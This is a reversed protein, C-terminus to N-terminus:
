KSRDWCRDALNIVTKTIKTNVLHFILGLSCCIVINLVIHALRGQVKDGVIDNYATYFVMQMLFIEYSSRGLIELPIFRLKLNNVTWVLLPVIWMDALCSTTPWDFWQMIVERKILGFHLLFIYGLGILMMLVSDRKRLNCYYAFVGASIIFIYRFVLNRWCDYNMGYAWKMCAYLIDASLCLILGVHRKKSILYNIIPIILVLQTIIPIYYSGPGETGCLFWRVVGKGSRDVVLNPDAIIWIVVFIYPIYYRIYKRSLERIGYAEDVTKIGHRNISMAGVYGSIFMFVPVAMDILFPFVLYNRQDETWNFHTLVVLIIAVGKLLDIVTNRNNDASVSRDTAM